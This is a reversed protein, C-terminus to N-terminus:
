AAVAGLKSFGAVHDAEASMARALRVHHDQVEDLTWDFTAITNTVDLLPRSL